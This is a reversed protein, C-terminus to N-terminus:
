ATRERAVKERASADELIQIARVQLDILFSLLASPSPSVTNPLSFRSVNVLMSLRSYKMVRIPLRTKIQMAKLTCARM